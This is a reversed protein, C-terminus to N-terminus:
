ASAAAGTTLQLAQDAAEAAEDFRGLKALVFGKNVWATRYARDIELAREYCALALEHKGLRALANGKNNWAVEYTPNVKIASNYCKLADPLRGVRSLATGKNIWAIENTPDLSVARDLAELADAPRGMAVLAAGKGYWGAANEQGARRAFRIAADYSAVAKEYERRAYEGDAKRLRADTVYRLWRRSGLLVSGGIAFAGGVAWQASVTAGPSTLALPSVALLALLLLGATWALPVGPGTRLRWAQVVLLGVGALLLVSEIPPSPGNAYGSLPTAVLLLLGALALLVSIRREGLPRLGPLTLVTALSALVGFLFLAGYESGAIRASTAALAIPIALAAGIATFERLSELRTAPGRIPPSSPAVTPARRTKPKPEPRVPVRRPTVAAPRPKPRAEKPPPTEPKARVAPPVATPQAKPAGKPAERPAIRPAVARPTPARKPPAQAKPAVRKPAPRGRLPTGCVACTARGKPTVSGCEPCLEPIAREASGVPKGCEPCVEAAVHITRGCHPCAREEPRTAEETALDAGCKACRADGSSVFAGCAPCLYVTGGEKPAAEGAAPRFGSEFLRKATGPDVKLKEMFASLEEFEAEPIVSGCNDCRRAGRPVPEGCLPCPAEDPPAM